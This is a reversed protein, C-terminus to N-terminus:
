SWRVSTVGEAVIGQARILGQAAAPDDTHGAYEYNPFYKRKYESAEVTLRGWGFTKFNSLNVMDADRYLKNYWADMTPGAVKPQKAEFEELRKWTGAPVQALREM